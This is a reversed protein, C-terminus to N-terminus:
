LNKLVASICATTATASVGLSTTIFTAIMGVCAAANKKMLVKISTKCVKKIICSALWVQGYALAVFLAVGGIAIGAIIAAKQGTTLAGGEVYTMEDEDMVAYSSPLVLAGGYCMEM